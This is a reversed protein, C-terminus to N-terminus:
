ESDAVGPILKEASNDSVLICLVELRFRGRARTPEEDIHWGPNSESALNRRRSRGLRAVGRHYHYFDLTPSMVSAKRQNTARFDGNNIPAFTGCKQM